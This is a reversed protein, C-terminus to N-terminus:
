KLLAKVGAHVVEGDRCILTEGLVPNDMQIAPKGEKDMLEALFTAVNRAFMQSAHFPVSGPLNTPGLILVGGCRAEKDAQTLECNGGREAALDVIISGPMMAEVMEKTIIVPSKKGPIAATCIIIHCEAVVRKMFERQKRLFEESQEKAYGGKGESQSTDLPMEVFKAGLSEIQEKVAPRVDYARVVAGLRRGTSIAQLGAVGAGIVLMQAATVTGAATMFMPFMRPSHVAALLVAKYGAVTAQSSLVDMSQARTIRPILELAFATVKRAALAKVLEPRWLPDFCGVIIQGEHLFDLDARGMDPNAGLGRIQAVLGSGAFVEARVALIKAGKEVYASDPFGAPVGAGAEVAVEHGRKILQATSDPTFAVRNEGPFSEKVVGIKM